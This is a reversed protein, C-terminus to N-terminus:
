NRGCCRLRNVPRVLCSCTFEEAQDYPVSVCRYQFGLLSVTSTSWTVLKTSTLPPVLKSSRLLGLALSLRTTCDGYFKDAKSPRMSGRWLKWPLNKSYDLNRTTAGRSALKVVRDHLGHIIKPSGGLVLGCLENSLDPCDEDESDSEINQAAALNAVFEDYSESQQRLFPSLNTTPNKKLKTQIQALIMRNALKCAKDAASEKSSSSVSPSNGSGSM